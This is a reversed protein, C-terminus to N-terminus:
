DHATGTRCTRRRSGMSRSRRSSGGGRVWTVRHAAILVGQALAVLVLMMPFLLLTEAHLVSALEGTAVAIMLMLPIVALPAVVLINLVFRRWTTPYPVLEM